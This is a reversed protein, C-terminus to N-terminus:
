LNEWDSVSRRLIHDGVLRRSCLSREDVTSNTFGCIFIQCAKHSVVIRCQVTLTRFWRVCVELVRVKEIFDIERAVDGEFKKLGLIEHPSGIQDDKYADQSCDLIPSQYKAARSAIFNPIEEQLITNLRSQISRLEQLYSPSLVSSSKKM